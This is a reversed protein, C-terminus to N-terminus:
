ERYPLEIRFDDLDLRTRHAPIFDLYEEVASNGALFAGRVNMALWEDDEFVYIDFLLEGTNRNWLTVSGDANVAAVYLGGLVIERAIQGTSELPSLTRGHIQQLGGYGITTFLSTTRDDWVVRATPDEGVFEAIVTDQEFSSGGYRVLKTTPSAQSGFLGIAYLTSREGLVVGTSLFAENRIPVTERTLQDVRILSSDFSSSRTKAIVIGIEPDWTATQAGPAVYRFREVPLSASLQIIRGNRHIVVPGGVTSRVDLIPNEREDTYYINATTSPPVLSHISGAPETAGWILVREGVRELQARDIGPLLTTSQRVSSVRITRASSQIADSVLTLIRDGLSLHLRGETFAADLVPITPRPGLETRRGTSDSFLDVVGSDDGAMVANSTEPLPVVFQATPSLDAPRYFDRRLRGNEYTFSLVARRGAQDTLVMIRNNAEDYRIDHIPSVPYHARIEGTLNDVIVLENVGAAALARRNDPDVLTMNTLRGQTRVRQLEEGSQLNWYIFEGRSPVYTMINRETSGMQLFGVIGFGDDLYSRASGRDAALFFLSQFTPLAFMLYSGAPSYSLYVPVSDLNRHFLEEGTEWDVVRISSRDVGESVVLAVENRNPHHVVRVVPRHSIQYRHLLARRELDWVLLRGDDGVSFALQDSPHAVADRVAGAHGITLVVRSEATVVSAMLVLLLLVLARKM